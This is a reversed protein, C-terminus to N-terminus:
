AWKVRSRVRKAPAVGPWKVDLTASKELVWQSSRGYVESTVIPSPTTDPHM